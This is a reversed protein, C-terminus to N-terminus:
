GPRRYLSTEPEGLLARLARGNAADLRHLAVRNETLARRLLEVQAVEPGPVRTLCRSARAGALGAALAENAAELRRVAHPGSDLLANRQADILGALGSLSADDAPMM